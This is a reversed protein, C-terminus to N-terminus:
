FDEVLRDAGSVAIGVKAIGEVIDVGVVIPNKQMFVNEPIVSLVCPFVAEAGVERRKEEEVDKM